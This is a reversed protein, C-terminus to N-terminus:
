RYTVPCARVAADDDEVVEVVGKAADALARVTSGPLCAPATFVVTAAAGADLAPLTLLPQALGGVQLGVSSPAPVPGRGTNRITVAYRISGQDGPDPEFGIDAVRLDPRKDPQRCAGSTRVLRRVVRGKRDLWRFSVRVRYRAPAILADVRKDYVFGPVGPASREWVGFNPVGTLRREPKGAVEAYLDFRLALTTAQEIAPMSATFVAYRSPLDAGTACTKVKVGLPTPVQAGAPAAAPALLALAAASAAMLRVSRRM